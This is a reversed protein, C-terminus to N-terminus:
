RTGREDASVARRLAFALRFNPGIGLPRGRRFYVRPVKQIFSRPSIPPSNAAHDEATVTSKRHNLRFKRMDSRAGWCPIEGRSARAAALTSFRRALFLVPGISRPCSRSANRRAPKPPS